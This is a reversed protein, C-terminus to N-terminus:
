LRGEWDSLNNRVGKRQEGRWWDWFMPELYKIFFRLLDDERIQGTTNVLILRTGCAMTVSEGIRCSKPLTVGKSGGAKFVRRRATIM